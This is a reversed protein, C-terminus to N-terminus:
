NVKPKLVIRYTNVDSAGDGFQATMRSGSENPDQVLEEKEIDVWHIEENGGYREKFEIKTIMFDSNPDADNIQLRASM